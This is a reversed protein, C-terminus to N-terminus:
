AAPKLSYFDFNQKIKFMGCIYGALRKQKLSLIPYRPLISNEFFPRNLFGLINNKCPVIVIRDLLFHIATFIIHFNKNM